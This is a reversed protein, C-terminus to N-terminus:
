DDGLVGMNGDHWLVEKVMEHIKWGDTGRSVKLHYVASIRHEVGGRAANRREYGRIYAKVTADDGDIDIALPVTLHQTGDQAAFAPAIMEAFDAIKGEWFDGQEDVDMRVDDAFVSTYTDWDEFDFASISVLLQEIEMRDLIYRVKAELSANPDILHTSPM